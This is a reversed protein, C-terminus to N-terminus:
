MEASYGLPSVALRTATAGRQVIGVLVPLAQPFLEVLDGRIGVRQDRLVGAHSLIARVEPLMHRVQYGLAFPQPIPQGFSLLDGFVLSDAVVQAPPKIQKLAASATRTARVCPASWGQLPMMRFM